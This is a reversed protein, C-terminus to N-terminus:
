VIKKLGDEFSVKLSDPITQFFIDMKEEKLKTLVKVDDETINVSSIVLKSDKKKSIGGINLTDIVLGKQVAEYVSSISKFLLLVKFDEFNKENWYSVVEDTSLAKIHLGSRSGSSIYIQKMFDDKAVENDVIFIANIGLGKSWKTMVQGHILRDDIRTLQIKGM